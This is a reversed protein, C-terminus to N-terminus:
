DFIFFTEDNGNVPCIRLDMGLTVIGEKEANKPAKVQTSPCALRFRSGAATGHTLALSGLTANKAATFYDKEAMLPARISVSGSPGRDTILVDDTGVCNDDHIVKQGINVSLDYFNAAFGHLAFGSSYVNGIPAPQKWASLDGTTPLAVDTPTAFLATFDFSLLGLNKPSLKAQVSGRAYLLKHLLGDLYTYISLSELGTSVPAYVAQAAISYQTTVDPPTTWADMMTAVKTTGNYALIVGAQGTGTGGTTTLRMGRYANDVASAGVALTIANAGGAQATGVVPAALLTEAFGTGRLLAGLAPAQGATGAGQIAVDFQIKAAQSVSLEASNGFFGAEINNEVYAAELPTFQVNRAEIANAAPTPAADVGATGEPKALILKKKWYRTTTPM